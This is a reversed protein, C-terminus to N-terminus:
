RFRNSRRLGGANADNMFYCPYSFYSDVADFPIKQIGLVHSYTIRKKDLNIIGPFSIGIGLIKEREAGSEDLFIELERDVM